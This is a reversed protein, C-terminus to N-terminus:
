RWRWAGRARSRALSRAGGGCRLARTGIACPSPFRQHRAGHATIVRAHTRTAYVARPARHSRGGGGGGGRDGDGDGVGCRTRAISRALSRRRRRLMRTGIARPRFPCTSSECSARHHRARARAHCVSRMVRIHTVRVRMVCPTVWRWRWRWRWVARACDLSRALSRAGGGRACAPRTRPPFPVTIVFVICMSSAHTRIHSARTVYRARRTSAHRLRGGGGLDFCNDGARANRRSSAGTLKLLLKSRCKVDCHARSWSLCSLLDYPLFWSPPGLTGNTITCRPPSTTRWRRSGRRRLRGRWWRVCWCCM